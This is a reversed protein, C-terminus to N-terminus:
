EKERWEARIRGLGSELLEEAQYLHYTRESPRAIAAQVHKRAEKIEVIAGHQPNIMPM